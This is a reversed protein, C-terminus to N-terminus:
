ECDQATFTNDNVIIVHVKCSLLTVLSQSTQFLSRQTNPLQVAGGELAPQAEVEQEIIGTNKKCGPSIEISRMQFSNLPKENPMGTMSKNKFQLKHFQM